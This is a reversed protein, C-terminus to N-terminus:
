KGGGILYIDCIDWVEKGEPGGLVEVKHGYVGIIIGAYAPQGRFAPCKVLNGVKM